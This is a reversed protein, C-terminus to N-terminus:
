SKKRRYREECRCGPFRLPHQHGSTHQTGLPSIWGQAENEKCGDSVKGDGITSWFKEMPIGAAELALATEYSGEEYANGTETVAILHARSDIHEQPRGVAFEEFQEIIAEATKKYSWGEENADVILDQLIKKTTENVGSVLEAGYNQLFATARPNKLDFNINMGLEALMAIGGYELAKVVAADIPVSFLKLTELVVQAWILNFEDPPLAESFKKNVWADHQKFPDSSEAFFRKVQRMRRALLSGQQRFAKRIAIELPRILREMKKRQNGRRVAEEFVDIADALQGISVLARVSGDANQRGNEAMQMRGETLQGSDM